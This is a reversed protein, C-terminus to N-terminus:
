HDGADKLMQVEAKLQEMKLGMSRQVDGADDSEADELLKSYAQLADDAAEHAITAEENFYTTGASELAAGIEERAEAFLDNVSDIRKRLQEKDLMAVSTVHFSRVSPFARLPVRAVTAAV